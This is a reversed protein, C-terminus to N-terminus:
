EVDHDKVVKDFIEVIHSARDQIESKWFGENLRRMFRSQDAKGKYSFLNEAIRHDVAPGVETNTGKLYPVFRRADDPHKRYEVRGFLVDLVTANGITGFTTAMHAFQQFKKYWETRQTDYQGAYESLKRLENLASRPYLRDIYFRGKELVPIWQELVANQVRKSTVSLCSRTAIVLLQM